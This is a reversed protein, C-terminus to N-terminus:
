SLRNVKFWDGIIILLESNMQEEIIGMSKGILFLNTDDAFMLIHFLKSACALDNIYLLFLVPGLISGQPVDCTRGAFDSNYGDITVCQKRNYLYSQFWRLAIGRIGYHQLKSLLKGHDVTDFAKALDM